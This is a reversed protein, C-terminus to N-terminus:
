GGYFLEYEQKLLLLFIVFVTEREKATQYIQQFLKSQTIPTINQRFSKSHFDTNFCALKSCNKKDVFFYGIFLAFAAYLFLNVVIYHCIFNALFKLYVRITIM